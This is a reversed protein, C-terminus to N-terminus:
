QVKLLVFFDVSKFFFSNDLTGTLMAKFFDSVAILVCKHANFLQGNCRIEYDCLKSDNRMENLKNLLQRSYDSKYIANTQPLSDISMALQQQQQQQQKENM